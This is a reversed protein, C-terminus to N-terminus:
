LPFVMKMEKMAPFICLAASCIYDIQNENM